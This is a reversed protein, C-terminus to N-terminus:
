NDVSLITEFRKIQEFTLRPSNMFITLTSLTSQLLLKRKTENLREFYTLILNVTETESLEDIEATELLSIFEYHEPIVHVTKVGFINDVTDFFPFFEDEFMVNSVLCTGYEADFAEGIEVIKAHLEKELIERNAAVAICFKGEQFIKCYITLKGMSIKEIQDDFVRDSFSLLASVFSSFINKDILNKEGNFCQQLLCLGKSDLIWLTDLGDM